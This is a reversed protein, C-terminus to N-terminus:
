LVYVRQDHPLAACLGFGDSGSIILQGDALGHSRVDHQALRDHNQLTMFLSIYM